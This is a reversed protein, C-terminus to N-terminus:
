KLGRLGEVIMLYPNGELGKAASQEGAGDGHAVAVVWKHAPRQSSFADLKGVWDNAEQAKGQRQLVWLPLINNLVPELPQQNSYEVITVELADAEKDKNLKRLCFAQAYDQMRTDADYPKGVGLNEPWTKSKELKAIADTYKKKNILDLAWLLYAQEYVTKGDSSGEFPLITMGELTKASTAYQGNHLLAKAYQLGLTSNGKFKKVAATSLTLTKQYDGHQEHYTILASVNRWDQPALRQATELDALEKQADKGSLLFARSSYFPAYDPTNGLSQCINLADQDRSIGWYNLGLYYKFKWHDNQQTAWQLIDVTELRFPFVFAPSEAAISALAADDKKLYATWLHILPHAPAKDLVNLADDTRGLSQYQLAVELYTQYPFENQITAKFKALNDPTTHLLYKEFDAFHDLADLDQLTAVIKDAEAARNTKRYLVTLVDLANFNYRNFDLSQRAYQEAVALDGRQMAIAAMQAYAPSRYEASRAAWGLTELANLLDGQARYSVGAYYNVAPDYADLQLGRHGYYLASDFQHRRYYLESLAAIAGIHQADKAVCNLLLTKAGKYNRSEKQEMGAYYLYSASSPDAKYPSAFPRKILNKNESSYRLDLGEVTVGFPAKDDLPVTTNIVDMPKLTKTETHIVKGGSSVVIRAEAAGLANVGIALKGHDRAVHLVGMPSVDSLGGIDKVPFWLEQWRDTLGPAFPVQTIPTRLSSAQFQNFMRGAQFEMYQGDSDTLLDEWIGGNRSLAWLWLKHGPMDNYLAWHGFGFNSKHYYGGMFDTYEGVIHSSRHSGFNSNAYKSIDRGQTDLPWPGNAGDHGLEEDGPYFFELDDSVVAAATMWNYYSQPLPTPNNWLAHTEFYAKDKPLRIEVRWQTRSPLDTNGVFCSVSGDANERTKYDVPTATAPTHGIYGFNFEIGGSTWPGRM